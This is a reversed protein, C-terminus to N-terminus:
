YSIIVLVSGDKMYFLYFKRLNFFQLKFGMDRLIIVNKILNIDNISSRCNEGEKKELVGSQMNLFRMM